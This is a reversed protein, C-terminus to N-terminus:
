WRRSRNRAVGNNTPAGRDPACGHNGSATRLRHV